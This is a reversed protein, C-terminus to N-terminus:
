KFVKPFSSSRLSYLQNAERVAQRSIDILFKKIFAISNPKSYYLQRAKMYSWIVTEMIKQFDSTSTFDLFRKSERDTPDPPLSFTQEVDKLEEHRLVQKNFQENELDSLFSKFDNIRQPSATILTFIWNQLGGNFENEKNTRHDYLLTSNKQLTNRAKTVEEDLKKVLKMVE